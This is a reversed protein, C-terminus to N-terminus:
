QQPVEIYRPALPSAFHARLSTENSRPEKRYIKSSSPCLNGNRIGLVENYLSENFQTEVININNTGESM